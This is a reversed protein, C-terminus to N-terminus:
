CRPGAAARSPSSPSTSSGSGSDWEPRTASVPSSSGARTPPRWTTRRRSAWMAGQLLLCPRGSACRAGSTAEAPSSMEARSSPAASCAAPSPVGRFRVGPAPARPRSRRMASPRTWPGIWLFSVPRGGYSAAEVRMTVGPHEPHPGEWAARVTAFNRPSWRPEVPTFRSSTSARRVFCVAGIRKRPLPRSENQVQPPVIALRLLRGRPDVWVEAMGPEVPAPNLSEVIPTLLRGPRRWRRFSRRRRRAISSRWPTERFIAAPLRRSRSGLRPLVRRNPVLERLRRAKRAGRTQLIERARERLIEPSKELDVFRAINARPTLFISLGLAAALALLLWRARSPEIGGRQGAAAVMEPSPTEGAALAAALPDGGPLAAAM